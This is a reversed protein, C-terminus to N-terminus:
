KCIATLRGVQRYGIKQYCVNSAVYDANTYLIPILGDALMRKTVGHVLNIAYGQRRHSPLTYVSTIKSYPEQDSRGTLATITGDALRWAFLKKEGVLRNLSNRCHERSLDHGEMEMHMDHWVDILSPIEEQQVARMAGRCPYNIEQITDLRYSLLGMKEKVGSFYPDAGKLTELLEYSLNHVYGQELPFDEQICRAIEAVVGENKVDGCWVWVPYPWCSHCIVFSTLDTVIHACEGLLINKLVSFTIADEKMLEAAQPCSQNRYDYRMAQVGLSNKAIM